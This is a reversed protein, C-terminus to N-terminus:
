SYVITKRIFLCRVRNVPSNYFAVTFISPSFVDRQRIKFVHLIYSKPSILVSFMSCLSISHMMFEDSNVMFYHKMNNPNAQSHPNIFHVYHIFVRRANFYPDLSFFLHNKFSVKGDSALVFKRNFLITCQFLTSFCIYQCRCAFPISTGCM